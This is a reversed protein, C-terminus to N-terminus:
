TLPSEIQRFPEFIIALNEPAIGIGTDAVSFEVGGDNKHVDVTVSGKETFKVANNILNKLIVKLKEPDTRLTLEPEVNWVFNLGSNECLSRTESKIEEVLSSVSIEKLEVSKAELRSIVLISNILELLKQSNKGIRKLADIQEETLKGAVGDLLLDNYGIISILPTRLEHSIISLFDSKLRSASEAQERALREAEIRRREEAKERDSIFGLGAAIVNFLLIELLKDFDDPSLGQWNMITVPLYLATISLSTIIGGRLGFWFGSLILPLFYLERYFIHYYIQRMETIYHLSSIAIVLTAVIIIRTRM